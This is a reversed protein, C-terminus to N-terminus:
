VNLWDAIDADSFEEAYAERLPAMFDRMQEPAPVRIHWDTATRAENISMRADHWSGLRANAQQLCRAQRQGREIPGIMARSTLVM